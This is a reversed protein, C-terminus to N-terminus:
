IHRIRRKFMNTLKFKAVVSVWRMYMTCYRLTQRDLTQHNEVFEGIRWILVRVLNEQLVTDQFTISVLESANRIYATYELQSFTLVEVVPVVVVESNKELVANLLLNLAM